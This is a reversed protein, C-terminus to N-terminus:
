HEHLGCSSLRLQERASPGSPATRFRAPDSDKAYQKLRAVFGDGGLTDLLTQIADQHGIPFVDAYLPSRRFDQNRLLDNLSATVDMVGLADRTHVLGLLHGVEHSAVNAIANSMETVSPALSAFAAFTDTFVIAEQSSTANFEDIGEAVGLLAADYTGFFLRSMTGDYADDESTSLITIDFGIYDERIGAVVQDIIEDTRGSFSADIGAADFPPVDIPARGGVRVNTGGDFVLLVVDPRSTPVPAGAQKFAVLGYDGYSGYGPTPSVAVYCSEAERRMVVDVFPQTEGLYVNRHDNVLLATGDEDFLVIVGDLTDDTTMDVVIRDGIVVPGLDYVDVDSRSTIHGRIVQQESGVPVYEASELMDNSNSEYFTSEDGEGLAALSLTTRPRNDDPLGVLAGCGSLVIASLFIVQRAIRAQKVKRVFM